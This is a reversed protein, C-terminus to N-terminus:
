LTELLRAYLSVRRELDEVLVHEDPTHAGGGAPGIGDLTPTGLAATYCGDSAGGASGEALTWGNATALSRARELLAVVGPTRELPPRNTGGSVEVSAGPTAPTLSRLLRDIRRAEDASTFRVDLLAWASAPIVNSATGGGIRTVSVTTGAGRDGLSAAAVVQHALEVAANVGGDPDLGAHSAKGTVDVRYLAVGKRRTKAAGNELPPEPVLVASAERGLAEILERSTTSGTEEDCTLLLVVPRRPARGRGALRALAELVCAIGGKMDFVGPGRAIGNAVTFAPAFSGAPHVTDFHGLILVPELQPETGRARAVLHEGVGPAEVREVAAGLDTLTRALHGALARLRDEDESPSELEVLARLRELVSGAAKEEGPSAVTM